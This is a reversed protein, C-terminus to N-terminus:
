KIIVRKKNYWNQSKCIRGGYCFDRGRSKYPFPTYEYQRIVYACVFFEAHHM